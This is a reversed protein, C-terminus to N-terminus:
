QIFLVNDIAPSDFNPCYKTIILKPPFHATSATTFITIGQLNIVQLSLIQELERLTFHMIEPNGSIDLSKLSLLNRIFIPFKILSCYAVNLHNLQEFTMEQPLTAFFTNFSMDLFELKPMLSPTIADPWRVFNNHSFNLGKLNTWKSKTAIESIRNFSLDLYELSGHMKLITGPVRKLGTNSLSLIKLNEFTKLPKLFSSRLNHTNSFDLYSLTEKTVKNTKTGQIIAVYISLSADMQAPMLSKQSNKKGKEKTKPFPVHPNYIFPAVSGEVQKMLSKRRGEKRRVLTSFLGVNKYLTARINQM